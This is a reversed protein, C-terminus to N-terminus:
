FPIPEGLSQRTPEPQKTQRPTSAPSSNGGGRVLANVRLNHYGDDSVVVTGVFRLGKLQPCATLLENSLTKGRRGWQDAPLGLTLMDGGLFDVSEQRRFFTPREVLQGDCAGGVVRLSLRFIPERKERTLALEAGFIEFTYAGAPLTDLGPLQSSQRPVYDRQLEDIGQYENM